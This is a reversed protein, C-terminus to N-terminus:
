VSRAPTGGRGGPHAASSRGEAVHCRGLDLEAAHPVAGDAAAVIEGELPQQSPVAFRVAAVVRGGVHHPHTPVDVTQQGLM